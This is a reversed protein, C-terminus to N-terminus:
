RILPLSLALRGSSPPSVRIEAVVAPLPNALKAGALVGRLVGSPPPPRFRETLRLSYRTM